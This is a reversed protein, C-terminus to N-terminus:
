LKGQDIIKSIKTMGKKMDNDYVVAHTGEKMCWQVSNYDEVMWGNMDDNKIRKLYLLSSINLMWLTRCKEWENGWAKEMVENSVEPSIDLIATHMKILQQELADAVEEKTKGLGSMIKKVQERGQEKIHSALAPYREKTTCLVMPTGDYFGYLRVEGKVPQKNASLKNSAM